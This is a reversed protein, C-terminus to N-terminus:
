SLQIPRDKIDTVTTNIQTLTCNSIATLLRVSYLKYQMLLIYKESSTHESFV